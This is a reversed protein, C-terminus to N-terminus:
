GLMKKVKYFMDDVSINNICVMNKCAPLKFNKYCPRCDLNNNEVILHKDSVPYPGYVRSDVPGHISITKTGAAVAMHLPGGDNTILLEANKLIALSVMLETMGCLNICGSVGCAINNSLHKEEASGLLVIKRNFEKSIKSVINKFREIPWRRRFATDGWSAGAGPMVCIYKDKKTIGKESLLDDAKQTDNGAIYIKMRADKFIDFGACSLLELHHDIVHKGEYGNPLLIKKTYFIGRNHYDYGIREKIGTMKLFFSYQRSLSLDFVIDFKESKIDGILNFVKKICGIKSNQWARRFEDKEFVFTKDVKPNSLILHSSRANCVYGLFAGQAKIAEIMPTTFLVDGIGFPNVILFRKNQIANM